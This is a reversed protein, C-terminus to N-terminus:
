VPDPMMYLIDDKVMEFRFSAEEETLEGDKVQEECEEKLEQLKMNYLKVFEENTMIIKRRNFTDKIAKIRDYYGHSTL